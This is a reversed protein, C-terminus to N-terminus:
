QEYGIESLVGIVFHWQGLVFFVRGLEFVGVGWVGFVYILPMEYMPVKDTANLGSVM